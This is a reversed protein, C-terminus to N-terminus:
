PQGNGGDGSARAVRTREVPDNDDPASQRLDAPITGAPVAIMMDSCTYQPIARFAQQATTAPQSPQASCALLRSLDAL